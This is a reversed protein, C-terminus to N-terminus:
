LIDMVKYQAASKSMYCTHKNILGMFYIKVLIVIKILLIYM